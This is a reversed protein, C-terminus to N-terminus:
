PGGGPPPRPPRPFGGRAGGGAGQEPPAAPPPLPAPRPPPPPGPPGGRRHGLVGDGAAYPTQEGHGVLPGLVEADGVGFGDHRLVHEGLSRAPRRRPLGIPNGRLSAAHQARGGSPMSTRTVTRTPM